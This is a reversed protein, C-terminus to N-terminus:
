GAQSKVEHFFGSGCGHGFHPPRNTIALLRSAWHVFQWSVKRRSSITGSVARSYCRAKPTYSGSISCPAPTWRALGMSASTRMAVKRAHLNRFFRYLQPRHHAHFYFERVPSM